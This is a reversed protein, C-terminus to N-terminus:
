SSFLCQSSMLSALSGPPHTILLSGVLSPRLSDKTFVCWGEQNLVFVCVSCQVNVLHWASKPTLKNRRLLCQLNQYCGKVPVSFHTLCILCTSLVGAFHTTQHGRALVNPHLSVISLPHKQCWFQVPVQSLCLCRCITFQGNHHPWACGHGWFGSQPYQPYWEAQIQIQM